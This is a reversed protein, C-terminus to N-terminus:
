GHSHTWPHSIHRHIQTCACLYVGPTQIESELVSRIRVDDALWWARNIGSINGNGGRGGCGAQRDGAVFATYHGQNTNGAHNSVAILDYLPKTTAAGDMFSSMDLGATPFTVSASNKIHENGAKMFRSPDYQSTMLLPPPPPDYTKGIFNACCLLAVLLMCQYRLHLILIQPLKALHVRKTAVAGMEGGESTNERNSASCNGCQFSADCNEPECFRRVTDFLTSGKQILPLTLFMFPEFTTSIHECRQCEITSCLQGQFNEVVISRNKQSTSSSCVFSVLSLRHYDM